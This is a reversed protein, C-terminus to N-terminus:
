YLKKCFFITLDTKEHKWFICKVYHSFAEDRSMENALRSQHYFFNVNYEMKIWCFFFRTKPIISSPFLFRHRIPHHRDLTGEGGVRVQCKSRGIQFKVNQCKSSILIEKQECPMQKKWDSIQNKVIESYLCSQLQNDVQQWGQLDRRWKLEFFRTSIFFSVPKPFWQYSNYLVHLDQLDLHFTEDTIVWIKPKSAINLRGQFYRKTQARRVQFKKKWPMECKSNEKKWMANQMRLKSNENKRMANRLLCKQM